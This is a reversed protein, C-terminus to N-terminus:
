RSLSAAARMACSVDLLEYNFGDQRSSNSQGYTSSNSTAVPTSLENSADEIVDALVARLVKPSQAFVLGFEAPGEDNRTSGLM